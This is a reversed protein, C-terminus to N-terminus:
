GEPLGETRLFCLGECMIVELTVHIHINCTLINCTYNNRQLPTCFIFHQLGVYTSYLFPGENIGIIEIKKM